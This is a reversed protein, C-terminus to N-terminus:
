THTSPRCGGVSLGPRLALRPRQCNVQLTAQGCPSTHTSPRRGGVSLSPRLALRPRQCNVQLTAQGCPSTHTSPRCGGVSLSPRLAFRPRQCSAVPAAQGCPSAHPQLGAPETESGVGRTTTNDTGNRRAGDQVTACCVTAPSASLHPEDTATAWADFFPTGAALAPTWSSIGARLTKVRRPVAALTGASNL